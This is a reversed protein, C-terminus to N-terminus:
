DRVLSSAQGFSVSTDIAALDWSFPADAHCGALTQNEEVNNSALNQGCHVTCADNSPGWSAEVHPKGSGSIKLCSPVQVGDSRFLVFDPWRPQHRTNEGRSAM